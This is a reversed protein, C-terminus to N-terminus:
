LLELNPREPIDSLNWVGSLAITTVVGTSIGEALLQPLITDVDGTVHLCGKLLDLALPQGPAQSPNAKM